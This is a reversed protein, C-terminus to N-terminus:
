QMSAELTHALRAASDDGDSSLDAARHIVASAFGARRLANVVEQEDGFHLHVRGRVFVSLMVRFARVRLDQLEGIHIDSIYTGHSFPQLATAFRRWLDKVTDHELYGLLGETLIALGGGRDLDSALEALSEPGRERLADLPQVRHRDSLAGIRKLTLRKRAAM